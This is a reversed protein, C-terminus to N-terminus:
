NIKAHSMKIGSILGSIMNNAHEKKSESFLSFYVFTFILKVINLTIWWYPTYKQKYLFLSNRFIYFHRRPSRYPMTRSGWLWYNINKDGIKHSVHTEFAGYLKFNLSKARFCWDTDVHDIFLDENYEGISNWADISILTGSSNLYDCEVTSKKHDDHLKKLFPFDFKYFGYETKNRPDILKPAIAAIKNNKHLAKFSRALNSASYRSPVSDHDLFFLFDLEPSNELARQAGINQAAAIGLNKELPFFIVNEFEACLLGIENQTPNTSGNDVIIIFKCDGLMEIQNKLTFLEPNFTITISIIATM